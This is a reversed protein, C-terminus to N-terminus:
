NLKLRLGPQIAATSLKNISMLTEVATNFKRAIGYLTDGARVVYTATSAGRAAPAHAAKPSAAAATTAVAVVPPDARPAPAGPKRPQMPVLIPGGARLRGKKDLRM